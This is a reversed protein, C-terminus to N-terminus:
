SYFSSPLVWASLGFKYFNLSDLFRNCSISEALRHVELVGGIMNVVTILYFVPLPWCLPWGIYVQCTSPLTQSSLNSTFDQNFPCLWSIKSKLSKGNILKEWAGLYGM